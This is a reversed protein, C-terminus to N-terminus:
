GHVCTMTARTVIIHKQVFNVRTFSTNNVGQARRRVDISRVHVRSYAILESQAAAADLREITRLMHNENTLADVRECLRVRVCM